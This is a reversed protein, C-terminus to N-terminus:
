VSLLFRTQGLLDPDHGHGKVYKQWTECHETYFLSSKPWKSTIGM